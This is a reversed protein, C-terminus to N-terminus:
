FWKCTKEHFNGDQIVVTFYHILNMSWHSCHYYHNVHKEEHVIMRNVAIDRCNSHERTFKFGLSSVQQHLNRFPSEKSQFCDGMVHPFFARVSSV